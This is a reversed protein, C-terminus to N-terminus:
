ASSVSVARHAARWRTLSHQWAEALEVPLLDAIALGLQEDHLDACASWQVAAGIRVQWRQHQWSVAVPLTPVALAALWRGSGPRVAGFRLRARGEPFVLAPQRDMRRRWERLLAISPRSNDLPITLLHAHWRSYTWCVLRRLLRAAPSPTHVPSQRLGAVLMYRDALEPRAASVARLAAAIVDIASGGKYHNVALVFTGGGPVLESGLTRVCGQPPRVRLLPLLRRRGLTQMVFLCWFLALRRRRAQAYFSDM